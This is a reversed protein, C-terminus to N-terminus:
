IKQTFRIKLFEDKALKFPLNLRKINTLTITFTVPDNEEIINLKDINTCFYSDSFLQDLNVDLKIETSKVSKNPKYNNKNISNELKLNLDQRFKNM